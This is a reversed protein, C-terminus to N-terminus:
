LIQNFKIFVCIRFFYMKSHKIKILSVKHKRGKPNSLIAVIQLFFEIAIKQVIEDISRDPLLSQRLGISFDKFNTKQNYKNLYM